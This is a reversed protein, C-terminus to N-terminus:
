VAKGDFRAKMRNCEECVICANRWMRARNPDRRRLIGAELSCGCGACREGQEKLLEKKHAEYSLAPTVVEMGVTMLEEYKDPAIHLLGVAPMEEKKQEKCQAHICVQNRGSDIRSKLKRYETTSLYCESWKYIARPFVHDRVAEGHISQGCIACICEQEPNKKMMQDYSM